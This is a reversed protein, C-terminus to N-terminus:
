SGDPYPNLFFRYRPPQKGLRRVTGPGRCRRAM